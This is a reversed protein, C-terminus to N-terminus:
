RKKKLWKLHIIKDSPFSLIKFVFYMTDILVWMRFDHQISKFGLGILDM